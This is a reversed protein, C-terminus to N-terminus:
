VRYSLEAKIIIPFMMVCLWEDIVKHGHRHVHDIDTSQAVYVAYDNVAGISLVWLFVGESRYLKTGPVLDKVEAESWRM